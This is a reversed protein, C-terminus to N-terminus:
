FSTIVLKQGQLLIAFVLSKSNESLMVLFLSPFLVHELVNQIYSVWFFLGLGHLAFVICFLCVFLRFFVLFLCVFFGLWFKVLKQWLYMNKVVLVGHLQCESLGWYCPSFFVCFWFPRSFGVSNNISVRFHSKLGNRPVSVAGCIQRQLHSDIRKRPLIEWFSHPLIILQPYKETYFANNFLGCVEWHVHLYSGIFWISNRVEWFTDGRPDLLLCLKM